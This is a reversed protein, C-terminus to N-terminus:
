PPLRGKAPLRQHTRACMEPFIRLRKMRRVTPAPYSHLHRGVVGGFSANTILESMALLNKKSGGRRGLGFAPTLMLLKSTRQGEVDFSVSVPRVISSFRQRVAFTFVCLNM